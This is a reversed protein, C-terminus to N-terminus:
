LQVHQQGPLEGIAQIVEDTAVRSAHGVLRVSVSAAIALALPLTFPLAAPVILRRM